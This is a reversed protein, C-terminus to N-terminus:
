KDESEVQDARNKRKGDRVVISEDKLLLKTEVLLSETEPNRVQELSLHKTDYKSCGNNACNELDNLLGAVGEEVVQPEKADEELDESDGDVRNNDQGQEVFQRGKLRTGDLGTDFVESLLKLERKLLQMDNVAALPACVAVGVEITERPFLVDDDVVSQDLLTLRLLNNCDQAMFQTMPTKAVGCLKETNSLYTGPDCLLGVM